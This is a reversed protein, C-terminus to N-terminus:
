DLEFLFERQRNWVKMWKDAAKNGYPDFDVRLHQEGSIVTLEGSTFTGKSEPNGHLGKTNWLMLWNDSRLSGDGSLQYDPLGAGNNEAFQVAAETEFRTSGEETTEQFAAELLSNQEQGVELHMRGVFRYSITGNSLTCSDRETMTLAMYLGATWSDGSLSARYTGSRYYGDPCLVGFPKAKTRKGFDIYFEMGDWDALTSDTWVVHTGAPLIATAQGSISLYALHWHLALHHMSQAVAKAPLVAEERGQKGCSAGVLASLGMMVPFFLRQM